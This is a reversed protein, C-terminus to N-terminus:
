REQGGRHRNRENLWEFAWASLLGWAIPIVLGLVINLVVDM